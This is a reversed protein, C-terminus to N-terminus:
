IAFSLFACPMIPFTAVLADDGRHFSLWAVVESGHAGMKEKEEKVKDVIGVKRWMGDKM